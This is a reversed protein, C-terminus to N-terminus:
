QGGAHVFISRVEEELCCWVNDSYDRLSRAIPPHNRGHEDEFGEGVMFADVSDALRSALKDVMREKLAFTSTGTYIAAILGAIAAAIVVPWVTVSFFILFTQTGFMIGGVTAVAAAAIGGLTPALTKGIENGFNMAHSQQVSGTWTQFESTFERADNAIGGCINEVVDKVERDILPVVKEAFVAELASPRLCDKWTLVENLKAAVLEQIRERRASLRSEIEEDWKDRLADIERLHTKQRGMIEQFAVARRSSSASPSPLAEANALLGQVAQFESEHLVGDAWAVAELRHKLGALEDESFLTLAATVDSAIPLLREVDDPQLGLRTAEARIVDLEAVDLTGDSLAVQLMAGLVAEAKGAKM